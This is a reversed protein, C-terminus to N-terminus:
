YITGVTSFLLYYQQTYWHVNQFIEQFTKNGNETNDSWLYKRDKYNWKMSIIVYVIILIKKFPKKKLLPTFAPNILSIYSWPVHVFSQCCIYFINNKLYKVKNDLSTNGEWNKM